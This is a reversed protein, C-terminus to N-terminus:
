SRSPTAAAAGRASRLLADRSHITTRDRGHQSGLKKEAADIAAWGDITVVEVGRKALTQVLDVDHRTAIPLIDLDDLLSAVTHAADKKNTGIIGTPGRKIWGAVYEGAVVAGESTVRGGAHPVVGREVDFHVGPLRQGRYGVSRIVLDAPITDLNGTGVARGAADIATREVVVGTVRSQGVLEVPRLFFRLHIRRSRKQAPEQSWGHLIEINRAVVKNSAREAESAADLEMDASDVVVAVDGLQGLERMEKTTFSAQAPGRRGLIHIDTVTSAALTDLVHHPMDTHNLEAGTKALVRAVDIAVNGVGVVVVSRVGELAAEIRETSSDPHGTYWAVFDTAAISGPLAEGPVGLRRDTSAGYTFVIADYYEHLEAVTVDTAVEIGALLRVGPRRLVKELTQRVSRIALHDPAVGYRVLGFPAPLREILDVRVSPDNRDIIADACYIGSPGAGIIAIRRERGHKDSSM